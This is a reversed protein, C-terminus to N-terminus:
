NESEGEAADPLAFLAKGKEVTKCIKGEACLARLLPTAKQSSSLGCAMFVQTATVGETQTSLFAMINKKHEENEKQVKTQKKSDSNNKRALLENEHNLYAIIDEVTSGYPPKEDSLLAIADLNRQTKTIKKAKESM